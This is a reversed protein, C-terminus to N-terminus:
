EGTGSFTLSVTELILSLYDQSFHVRDEEDDFARRRDKWARYAIGAKGVIARHGSRAAPLLILDRLKTLRGSEGHVPYFGTVSYVRDLIEIAFRDLKERAEKPQEWFLDQLEKLYSVVLSWVVTSGENTLVGILDLSGTEKHYGAAGLAFTDGVFAARDTDALIPDSRVVLDRLWESTHRDYQIRYFGQYDKNLIPHHDRPLQLALQKTDMIPVYDFKSKEGNKGITELFLPIQRTM